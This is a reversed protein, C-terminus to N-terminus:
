KTNCLDMKPHRISTQKVCLLQYIIIIIIIITIIIICKYLAV